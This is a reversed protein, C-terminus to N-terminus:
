AWVNFPRPRLKKIQLTAIFTITSSQMITLFVANVNVYTFCKSYGPSQYSALRDIGSASGAAILATVVSAERSLGTQKLLDQIPLFTCTNLFGPLAGNTVALKVM